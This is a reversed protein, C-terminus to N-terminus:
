LRDNKIRVIDQPANTVEGGKQHKPRNVGVKGFNEIFLQFHHAPSIDMTGKSMM